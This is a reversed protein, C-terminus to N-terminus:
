LVKLRPDILFSKEILNGAKEIRFRIKYKGSDVPGNGTTRSEPVIRVMRGGNNDSGTIEDPTAGPFPNPGEVHQIAEIHVVDTGNEAVGRWTITDGLNIETLYDENSITDAQRFNSYNTGDNAPTQQTMSETDVYLTVVVEQQAMVSVNMILTCVLFFLIRNTNLRIKM